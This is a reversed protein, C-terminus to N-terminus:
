ALEEGALLELAKVMASHDWGEGGRAVCASFLQQARRPTPCPWAWAKRRESLALTWIRRTCARHPLGSRVHAQDHARRASRPHAVRRLRGDAGPAGQGSRRRGQVRLGASGGVAEINLAVIIQNAVKTVQGAGVDGVLTINKGM